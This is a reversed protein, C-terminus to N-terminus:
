QYIIGKIALAGAKIAMSFGFIILSGGFVVKWNLQIKKPFVLAIGWFILFSAVLSYAYPSQLVMSILNHYTETM